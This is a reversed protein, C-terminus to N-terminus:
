ETPDSRWDERGHRVRVILVGEDTEVYVVVHTGVPHIRVPPAYETRERAIAPNAAILDFAAFLRDNYADAQNPGFRVYSEAYVRVLDADAARSLRYSM